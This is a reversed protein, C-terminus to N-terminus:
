ILNGPARSSNLMSAVRRKLNGMTKAGLLTDAAQRKRLDCRRVTPV